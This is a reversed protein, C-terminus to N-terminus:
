TFCHLCITASVLSPGNKSYKIRNRTWLECMPARMKPMKMATMKGKERGQQTECDSFDPKDENRTARSANYDSVRNSSM